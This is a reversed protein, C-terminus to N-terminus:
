RSRASRAANRMQLRSRFPRRASSDTSAELMARFRLESFAVLDSPGISRSVFQGDATAPVAVRTSVTDFLNAQRTADAAVAVAAFPLRGPQLASWMADDRFDDLPM